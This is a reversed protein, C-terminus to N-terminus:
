KFSLLNFPCLHFCNSYDDAIYLESVTQIEPKYKFDLKSAYSSIYSEMNSIEDLYLRKLQRAIEGFNFRISRPDSYQNFYVGGSINFVHRNGPRPLSDSELDVTTKIIGSFGCIHFEVPNEKYYERLYKSAGKLAENEESLTLLLGSSDSEYSELSDKSLLVEELNDILYACVSIASFLSKDTNEIFLSNSSSLSVEVPEFFNNELYGRISKVDSLSIGNRNNWYLYVYYEDQDDNYQITITTFGISSTSSTLTAQLETQKNNLKNAVLNFGPMTKVSYKLNYIFENLSDNHSM